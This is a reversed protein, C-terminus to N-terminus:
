NQHLQDEISKTKAHEVGGTHQTTKKEFLLVLCEEEAIPNHRVGRPVVFFQGEHLTVKEHEMEIILQGKLVLFM